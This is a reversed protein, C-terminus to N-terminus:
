LLQYTALRFPSKAFLILYSNPHLAHQLVFQLLFLVLLSTFYREYNGGIPDDIVILFFAILSIMMASVFTRRLVRSYRKCLPRLYFGSLYYMCVCGLPYLLLPLYFDFMPILITDVSFVRGEYVLWRFILFAGWILMSSFLDVLMYILQYKRRQNWYKM